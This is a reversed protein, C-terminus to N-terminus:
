VQNWVFKVRGLGEWGEKAAKAVDECFADMEKAGFVQLEKWVEDDKAMLQRVGPAKRRVQQETAHRQIKTFFDKARQQLEQCKESVATTSKGSIANCTAIILRVSDAFVYHHELHEALSDDTALLDQLKLNDLSTTTSTLFESLKTEDPTKSQAHIFVCLLQLALEGALREPETVGPPSEGAVDRLRSAAEDRLAEADSSFLAHQGTALSWVSDAILSYAVWAQGPVKGDVGHLVTEVNYGFDFAANFDRNDRAEIWNRAVLPGMGSLVDHEDCKNRMLRGIRRWELLALRRTQSFRLSERLEHLDFLMGTQGHHLVNAETDALKDECRVYVDLIRRLQKLPDYTEKKRVTTPHPHLLSLRTFLVHGVTDNQIEKVNLSDFYKMALSALGLRMYLYVLILRAEHIHENVRLLSEALYAAHLLFHQSTAQEFLRVTASIAVFCADAPSRRAGSTTATHFLRIAKVAFSRVESSPAENRILTTFQQKSKEIEVPLSEKGEVAKTPDSGAAGKEGEGGNVGQEGLGKRLFEWVQKSGAFRTGEVKEVDERAGQMAFVQGPVRCDLRADEHDFKESVAKRALGLALKASLDHAKLSLMQTLAAHAMYVVRNRPQLAKLQILTQQMDATRSDFVAREWRTSILELKQNLNPSAKVANEWLKAVQPGATTPPPYTTAQSEVVAMEIRCLDSPDRIPTQFTTFHNLVAASSNEQDQPSSASPNVSLLKFKTTLLHIDNPSRQLLEDCRRIGESFNGAAEYEEFTPYRAM